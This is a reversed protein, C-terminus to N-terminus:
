NMSAAHNVAIHRNIYKPMIYKITLQWKLNSWHSCPMQLKPRRRPAIREFQGESPWINGYVSHHSISLAYQVEKCISYVTM